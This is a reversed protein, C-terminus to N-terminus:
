ISRVKVSFHFDEFKRLRIGICYTCSHAHTVITGTRYRCMGILTLIQIQNPSNYMCTSVSVSWLGDMSWVTGAALLTLCPLATLVFHYVIIIM